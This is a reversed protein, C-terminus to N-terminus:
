AAKLFSERAAAPVSTMLSEPNIGCHYCLIALEEGTLDSGVLKVLIEYTKFELEENPNM